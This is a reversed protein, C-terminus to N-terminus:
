GKKTKKNILVHAKKIIFYQAEDIEKIREPHPRNLQKLFVGWRKPSINKLFIERTKNNAGLLALTLINEPTKKILACIDTNNWSALDDFCIIQQSLQKAVQPATKTLALLLKDKQQNTMLSLIASAKEWGHYFVHPTINFFYSELSTEINQIRKKSLSKLATLRLLATSSIEKPLLNLVEGAKKDSLNYLIIAISQSSENKLYNSIKESPISNLEEWIDAKKSFHNEKKLIEIVPQSLQINQAFASTEIKKTPETLTNLFISLIKFKDETSIYGLSHCLQKFSNIERKSMRKFLKKRSKNDLCSLIIGTQQLPSFINQCVSNSSQVSYYRLINLILEPATQTIHQLKEILLQTENRLTTNENLLLTQLSLSHCVKKLKQKKTFQPIVYFCVFLVFLCIFLVATYQYLSIKFADKQFSINKSELILFPTFCFVGLVLSETTILISLRQWFKEM